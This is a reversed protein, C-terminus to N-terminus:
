AAIRRSRCARPTPPPRCKGACVFNSLWTLSADDLAALGPHGDRSQQGRAQCRGLIAGASALDAAALRSASSGGVEGRYMQAAHSISKAGAHLRMAAVDADIRVFRAGDRQLRWWLDYDISYCLKEDLGGVRQWAERRILTAVQAIISRTSLARPSFDAVRYRGIVRDQEDILVAGGYVVAATSDADMAALMAALGGPLYMDDSGLWCVFPARGRAIAENIAAAQGPDPASRWWTLRSRWRDIVASTEDTSGADALMVEKEVPEAFISRLSADLFRGQNHSPVAV